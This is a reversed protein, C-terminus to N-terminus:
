RCDHQRVVLAEVHSGGTAPCRKANSGQSSRSDYVGASAGRWISCQWRQPVRVRMLSRASTVAAAFM